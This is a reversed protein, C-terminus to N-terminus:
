HHFGEKHQLFYDVTMALGDELNVSPSWELLNQANSIDSYNRYIDGTRVDTHEIKQFNIKRSLLAKVMLGILESVTVENNAAIQFIEGGIRERLGALFIARVLDEIYIFDRTQLGTGYIKFPEDRIAKKIFKAVISTKNASGPGYVNGFRLVVTEVGFCSNYASCYGEGALKSAGYPSEPRPAMDERLPPIQQGLPASSSAFILRRVNQHRCAELVNLTGQVNALCDGHPDAVSAAGRYESSLSCM